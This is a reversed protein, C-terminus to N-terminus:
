GSSASNSSPRSAGRYVWGVHPAVPTAPARGAVPRPPEEGELVYYTRICGKLVFFSDKTTQGERLLVTGKKVTRFINLSLIAAKEEPTLPVYKSLFDFLLNEM